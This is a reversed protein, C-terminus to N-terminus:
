LMSIECDNKCYLMVLLHHNEDL